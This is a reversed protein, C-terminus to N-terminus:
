YITETYKCYISFYDSSVSTWNSLWNAFTLALDHIKKECVKSISFLDFFMSFVKNLDDLILEAMSKAYKTGYNWFLSLEMSIPNKETKSIEKYDLFLLKYVINWSISYETGFTGLVSHKM